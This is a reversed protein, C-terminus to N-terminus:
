LNTFFLAYGLPASVYLNSENGVVIVNSTVNPAPVISIVQQAHTLLPTYAVLLATLILSAAIISGINTSNM